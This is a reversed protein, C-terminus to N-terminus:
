DVIEVATGQLSHWASRKEKEREMRATELQVQIGKVDTKIEECDFQSV